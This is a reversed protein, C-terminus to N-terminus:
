MKLDGSGLSHILIGFSCGRIGDSGEVRGGRGVFREITLLMAPVENGMVFGLSREGFM